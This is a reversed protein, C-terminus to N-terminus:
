CAADLELSVSRLESSYVLPCTVNVCRQFVADVAKRALATTTGLSSEVSFTALDAVCTTYEPMRRCGGDLNYARVERCACKEMEEIVGVPWYGPLKGASFRNPIGNFLLRSMLSMIYLHFNV